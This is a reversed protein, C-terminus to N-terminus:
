RCCLIPYVYSCVKKFKAKNELINIYNYFVWTQIFDLYFWGCSLKDMVSNVQCHFMNLRRDKTEELEQRSLHPVPVDTMVWYSADSSMVPAQAYKIMAWNVGHVHGLSWSNTAKRWEKQLCHLELQKLISVFNHVLGILLFYYHYLFV